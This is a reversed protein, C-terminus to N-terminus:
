EEPEFGSGAADKPAEANDRLSPRSQDSCHTKPARHAQAGPTSCPTNEEAKPNMRRAELPIRLATDM